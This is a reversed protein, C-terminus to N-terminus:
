TPPTTVSITKPHHDGVLVLVVTAMSPVLRTRPASAARAKKPTTAEAMTRVSRESVGTSVGDV